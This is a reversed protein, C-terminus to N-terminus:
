LAELLKTTIDIALKISDTNGELGARTTSGELIFSLHKALQNVKKSDHLMITKLHNFLINEIEQKHQCVVQRETTGAAFEAAANLLGCGRFCNEYHLEAHDLYALFVAIIKDKPTLALKQRQEYLHLWEKHRAELYVLILENKSHFNNYLSKKAVGAQKIILDIGTEHIGNTYFLICAADLLKDYATKTHNILKSMKM